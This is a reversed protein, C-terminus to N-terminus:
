GGCRGNLTGTGSCFTSFIANARPDHRLRDDIQHLNGAILRMADPHLLTGTRLAEEFIRL